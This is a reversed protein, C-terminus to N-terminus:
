STTHKDFTTMSFSKSTQTTSQTDMQLLLLAPRLAKRGRIRDARRAQTDHESERWAAVALLCRTDPLRVCGCGAHKVSLRARGNSICM